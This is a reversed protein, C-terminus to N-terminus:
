TPTYLYLSQCVQIHINIYARVWTYKCTLERLHWDTYALGNVYRIFVSVCLCCWHVHIFACMQVWTHLRADLQTRICAYLCLWFCISSIIYMHVVMVFDSYVSTCARRHMYVHLHAHTTEPICTCFRVHIHTWVCIREVYTDVVIHIHMGMHTYTTESCTHICVLKCVHTWEFSRMHTCKYGLIYGCAYTNSDTYSKGLTRTYVYASTCTYCPYACPQTPLVPSVYTTYATHPWHSSRSIPMSRNTYSGM